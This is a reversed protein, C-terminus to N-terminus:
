CFFRMLEKLVEVTWKRKEDETFSKFKEYLISRCEKNDIACETADNILAKLQRDYDFIENAVEEPTVTETINVELKM